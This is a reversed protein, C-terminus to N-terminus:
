KIRHGHDSTPVLFSVSTLANSTNSDCQTLASSRPSVLDRTEWALTRVQHLSCSLDTDVETGPVTIGRSKSIMGGGELGRFKSLSFYICLLIRVQRGLTWARGESGDQRESSAELGVSQTMKLMQASRDWSKYLVFREKRSFFFPLCKQGEEKYANTKSHNKARSTFHQLLPETGTTLIQFILTM